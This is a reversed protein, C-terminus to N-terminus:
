IIKNFRSLYHFKLHFKINKSNEEVFEQDSM